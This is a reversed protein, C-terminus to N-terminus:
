PRRVDANAVPVAGIPVPEAAVLGRVSNGLFVKGHVLDDPMLVHELAKGAAILEGRLTGPLLGSTLPPTLLTGGREIFINTRSGETLEGRENCFLVEDVGHAEALRALEGDFLERRTTKHYLFRDTSRVRRESLSFRAAAQRPEDSLESATVSVGGDEALVLRVRMHRDAFAEAQCELARAVRAVDYPFDFYTASDGLRELHRALLSYGKGGAYLMTEFLSFDRPPDTLFRMKLICEAYEKEGVSDAVLGSGIGMEARGGAGIVVTRIAVNFRSRRGPAMCGIAGCYVGRPETEYARILQMARIKPAGTISGPPFIARLLGGLMTAPQLRARIGSTLQHLTRYTEVTFLDTVEVSGIEAIRGIDNRMLDVIM